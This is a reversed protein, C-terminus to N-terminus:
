RWTALTSLRCHTYRTSWMKEHPARTELDPPDDAVPTRLEERAELHLGMHGHGEGPHAHAAGAPEAPMDLHTRLAPLPADAVVAAAVAVAGLALVDVPGCPHLHAPLLHKRAHAVEVHHESDGVAEMRQRHRVLRKEVGRHEPGRPGRQALEEPRPPQQAPHRGDQVRPSAVEVVVWVDVADDGPAPHITVACPMVELPALACAVEEERHLCQALHEAGLEHVHQRAAQLCGALGDRLIYALPTEVLGPDDVAARRRLADLLHQLVDPPIGVAHGDAVRADEAVRGVPHHGIVVLVVPATSLMPLHGHVDDVEEVQEREVDQRGREHAYAMVPQERRGVPVLEPLRLLQEPARWHWLHAPLFRKGLDTLHRAPIDADARAAPAPHVHDLM